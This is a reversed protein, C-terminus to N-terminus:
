LACGGLFPSSAGLSESAAQLRAYNFEERLESIPRYITTAGNVTEQSILFGRSSTRNKIEQEIKAAYDRWTMNEPKAM